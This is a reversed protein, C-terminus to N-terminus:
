SRQETYQRAFAQRRYARVEVRGSEKFMRILRTVQASGLGTVKGVFARITGRRKKNQQAYPQAVQTSQVWAYVDKKNQGAFSVDESGKLFEQIQEATLGEDNQMRIHMRGCFAWGSSEMKMIM